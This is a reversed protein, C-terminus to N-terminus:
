ASYLEIEGEWRKSVLFAKQHKPDFNPYLSKAMQDILAGYYVEDNPVVWSYILLPVPPLTKILDMAEKLKDMTLTTPLRGSHTGNFSDM